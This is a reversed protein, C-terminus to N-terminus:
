PGVISIGFAPAPPAYAQSEFTVSLKEVHSEGHQDAYLRLHKM